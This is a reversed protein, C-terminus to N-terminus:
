KQVVFNRNILVPLQYIDIQPIQSSNKLPTFIPTILLNSSTIEKNKIPNKILIFVNSSTIAKCWDELKEM